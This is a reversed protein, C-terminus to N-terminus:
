AATLPDCTAIAVPVAEPFDSAKAIGM